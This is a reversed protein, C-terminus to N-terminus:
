AYDYPGGKKLANQYAPLAHVKKVWANIAPLKSAIGSRTM